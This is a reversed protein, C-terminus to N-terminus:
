CVGVWSDGASPGWVAPVQKWGKRMLDKWMGEAQERRVHQRTKFLVPSGCPCSTGNLVRRCLLPPDIVM